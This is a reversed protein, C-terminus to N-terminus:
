LCMCKSGNPRGNESHFVKVSQKKSLKFIYLLTFILLHVTKGTSTPKSNLEGTSTPRSNQFDCTQLGIGDNETLKSARM